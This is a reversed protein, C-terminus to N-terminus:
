SHGLLHRHTSDNWGDLAGCSASHPLLVYCRSGEWHVPNTPFSCCSVWSWGGCSRWFVKWTFVPGHYWSYPNASTNHVTCCLCHAPIKNSSDNSIDKCPLSVETGLLNGRYSVVLVNIISAYLLLLNSRYLIYSTM